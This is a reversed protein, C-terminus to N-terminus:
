GGVKMSKFVIWTDARPQFRIGRDKVMAYIDQQYHLPIVAVERQATENLLQLAQERVKVDVIKSGLAEIGDLTPNAYGSGNYGGTGADPNVSNLLKAFSRGFDYSGDFWGLLYFDLNNKRIEKFFISKPKANVKVRIGIKALDGAVAALIQEDQVYRDNPGDLTIEFGKAYGAAALLLKAKDLDFGLREINASYGTTPPDPIQAAPSAHGFMVKRIIEDENIAMYMAKRVRLEATPTGPRNNLGLFISRRAPREIIKLKPNKALVKVSNVPVDQLIDVAGSMIGAMATSAETVARVTANKVAPAGEWYDPNAEMKLYSGKVWEKLRYAGTGIPHQGVDGPERSETSEKDMMFIQHLNQVFFPVPHTTKIDIVWPDGGVTDISAILSGFNVFRSIEPNKLRALTFKVDDLNFDNGNHFKVGKRLHFRWTLADVRQWSTALAPHLKGAADRQLLGDFMNSVISLNADAGSGNPEMTQPPSGVGVTVEQAHSAFSTGGIALALAGASLYSTLHINRM